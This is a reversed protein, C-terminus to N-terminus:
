LLRESTTRERGDLPIASDTQVERTISKERDRTGDVGHATAATPAPETREEPTRAEPSEAFPYEHEIRDSFRPAAIKARQSFEADSYYRIKTGYIAPSGSVFILAADGPLRM